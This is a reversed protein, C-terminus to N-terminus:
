KIEMIEVETFAQRFGKKTKHRTKAKYMFAVKKAAKGQRLVKATVKAGAILPTGLEIKGDKEVLLVENFSVEKGPESSIKEIKIKQGPSVLYQKGGTKIVAFPM